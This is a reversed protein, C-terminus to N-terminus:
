EEGDAMTLTYTVVCASKVCFSISDVIETVTGGAAVDDKGASAPPSSHRPFVAKCHKWLYIVVPNLPGLPTKARMRM